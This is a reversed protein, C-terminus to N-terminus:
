CCCCCVVLFPSVDTFTPNHELFCSEAILTGSNKYKAGKKAKVLPEIVDMTVDHPMNSKPALLSAVSCEVQGMFVHKGSKEHDFIEIKL